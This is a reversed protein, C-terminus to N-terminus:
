KNFWRNEVRQKECEEALHPYINAIKDLNGDKLLAYGEHKGVKGLLQCLTYEYRTMNHRLYNVEWRYLTADDVDNDAFYGCYGREEYLRNQAKITLNRLTEIDYSPIKICELTSEVFTEVKKTKTEVAKQAARVASDRRKDAKDFAIRFEESDEVEHVLDVSWMKMPAATAYKPNQFLTPEPLLKNIMGQTWGYEKLETQSYWKCRDERKLRQM